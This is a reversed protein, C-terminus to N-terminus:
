SRKIHDLLFTLAETEPGFDTVVACSTKVISTANGEADIKCLGAWEGLEERTKVMILPCPSGGQGKECLAQVLKTYEPENCDTALCCLKVVRRDLEKACERLGRRLGDHMLSQKLVRKLAVNPTLPEDVAAVEEVVVAETEMDGSMTTITKKPSIYDATLRPGGLACFLFNTFNNEDSNLISM